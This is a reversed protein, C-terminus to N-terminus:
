NDVPTSSFDKPLQHFALDSGLLRNVADDKRLVKRPVVVEHFKIRGVVCGSVHDEDKSILLKLAMLDNEVRGVEKLAAHLLVIFHVLALISRTKPDLLKVKRFPDCDTRQLLENPECVSALNQRLPLLAQLWFFGEIQKPNCAIKM